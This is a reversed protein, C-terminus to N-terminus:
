DGFLGSQAPQSSMGTEILGGRIIRATHGGHGRMANYGGPGLIWGMRKCPACPATIELIVDGINWWDGKQPREGDGSLVLNRRLIAPHVIRGLQQNIHDLDVTTILTVQRLPNRKGAAHDGLLGRTADLEARTVPNIPGHRQPRLGIWSLTFAGGPQAESAM